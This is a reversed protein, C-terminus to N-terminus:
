IKSIGIYYLDSSGFVRAIKEFRMLYIGSDSPIQKICEENFLHWNAQEGVWPKGLGKIIFKYADQSTM